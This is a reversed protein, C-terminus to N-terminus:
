EEIDRIRAGSAPHDSLLRPIQRVDANQFDEFLWVLGRPSYGAAACIDSGTLDPSSEDDRSYPLSHLDGIMAIALANAITPGLLIAAGIVGAMIKQQEKM